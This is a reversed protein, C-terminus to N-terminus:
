LAGTLGFSHRWSRSNIQIHSWLRGSPPEFFASTTKNQGVGFYPVTNQIKCGPHVDATNISSQDVAEIDLAAKLSTVSEGSLDPGPLDVPGSPPGSPTKTGTEQSNMDNLKRMIGETSVCAADWQAFFESEEEFKNRAMSPLQVRCQDGSWALLRLEPKEVAEEATHGPESPGAEVQSNWWEDLLMGQVRAKMGAHQSACDSTYASMYVVCPSEEGQLWAAHLGWSAAMWDGFTPCADVVVVRRSRCSDSTARGLLVAELVQRCARPGLQAAREAPSLHEKTKTLDAQPILQMDKVPILPVNNICRHQTFAKCSLWPSTEQFASSVCLRIMFTGERKDNGHTNSLDFTASISGEIDLGASLLKDEIKRCFNLWTAMSQSTYKIPYRVLIANNPSQHAINEAAQVCKIMDTLNPSLGFDLVVLTERSVCAVRVLKAWQTADAAITPMDQLATVKFLNYLRPLDVLGNEQILKIDLRSRMLHTIREVGKNRRARKYAQVAQGWNSRALQLKTAFTSVKDKDHKLDEMLSLFTASELQKKLEQRKNAAAIVFQSEQRELVAKFEPITSCDLVPQADAQQKLADDMGGLMFAEMLKAKEAAFAEAPLQSQLDELHLQFTRVVKQTHLVTADEATKRLGSPLNQWAKLIRDIILDVTETTNGMREQWWPSECQPKWGTRMGKSGIAAHSFPGRAMGYTSGIKALHVRQAPTMHVLLNCTASREAPSLQFGVVGKQFSEMLSMADAGHIKAKREIQHFHIFCNPKARTLASSMTINRM